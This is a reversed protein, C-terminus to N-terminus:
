KKAKAERKKPVEFYKKGSKKEPKLAQLRKRENAAVKMVSVKLISEDKNM